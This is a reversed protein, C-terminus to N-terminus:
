YLPICDGPPSSIFLDMKVIRSNSSVVEHLPQTIWGPGNLGGVGKRGGVFVGEITVAVGTTIAALGVEVM